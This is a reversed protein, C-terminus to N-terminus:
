DGTYAVSVSVTGSYTGSSVNPLVDVKGGIWLYLNGKSGLTTGFNDTSSSETASQQNNATNYVPKYMQMTLTHKGSTLTINTKPMTVKVNSSPEGTVQFEAAQQNKSTINILGAGAAVKGFNIGKINTVTLGKYIYISANAQVSTNTNNNSGSIASTSLNNDSSNSQALSLSTITLLIVM